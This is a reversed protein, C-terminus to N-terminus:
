EAKKAKKGYDSELNIQASETDAAFAKEPDFDKEPFIANLVIGAISAVALATLTISTSGVTFSIGDSLGLALVLIVAAVITNRAKSFDVKAEVVNRVGIASIMGYLVFSIGGVVAGPISEIIAAFKPCFSFFMAFYAAIRVVRPDYVKSLALVGTNEGYTTNAPAGFLSALITALGDGLLTRHLGPDNIYNRNVTASIASIDGIHEMMTAIAIPVIAIIASVALNKDHVGGFVTSNWDIPNGIWAADKVGSFDIAFSEVGGINGILIAAVYAGIIGILIPVIKVMGKGFINVIIVIALAIIALGWNASCSSVASPALGLGIAIIIPGTVVPPFLKMVKNIGVIKIIAALILYLIGACAVGLCAYPLMSLENTGEPAMAKVAAYGGLFAFSSGLFAPVKFKTLIHFLLTGLGAFLLTTSISLGTILPVTVTAGFMAFMHQFGLVVMRGGGLQRADYIGDKGVKIKNKAM